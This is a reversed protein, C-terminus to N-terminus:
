NAGAELKKLLSVALKYLLSALQEKEEPTLDNFIWHLWEWHEPLHQALFDLGQKTLTIHTSRRDHPHPQRQLYGDESLRDVLKTVNTRTVYMKESLESMTLTHYPSRFLIMLTTYKATSLGYQIAEKNMLTYLWNYTRLLLITLESAEPHNMTTYQDLMARVTSRFEKVHFDLLEDRSGSMSDASPNNRRAM